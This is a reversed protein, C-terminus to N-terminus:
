VFHEDMMKKPNTLEILNFMNVRQEEPKNGSKNNKDTQEDPCKPM